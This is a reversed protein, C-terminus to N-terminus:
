KTKPAEKKEYKKQVMQFLDKIRKKCKDCLDKFEVAEKDVRFAVVAKKEKEEPPPPPFADVKRIERGCRDCNVFKMLRESM